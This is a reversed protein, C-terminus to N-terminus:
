RMSQTTPGGQPRAPTRSSTGAEMRSAVGAGGAARHLRYLAESHKRQLEILKANAEQLSQEAQLVVTTDANGARYAAEAQERLRRQVPLLQSQVLELASRSAALAALARRVEEVVRRRAEVLKHRAETRAARAKAHRAGGWDFLPLPVALAPGVSWDDEREAEAGVEAGELAALTAAEAEGGLAALEWARAQVEPRHELAAEVWAAEDATEAVPPRWADLDWDAEASPQGLLRALTLRQDTREAARELAEAEVEVRQGDLALVDLQTAEGAALRARAVDLLRAILLRREQLVGVQADLAQIAAYTGQVEAAVDLVGTLAEEGAARLRDDAARIRSPRQLLALLEASLGVDVDPRGGGEPFRFVVALVPNPLLRAQRADAAAGRVRALAAQVAPDNRVARRVAEDLGLRGSRPRTEAADDPADTPGGAQRFEIAEELGAAERVRQSVDSPPVPGACGGLALFCLALFTTRNM